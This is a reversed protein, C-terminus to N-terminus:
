KQEGSNQLSFRDVCRARRQVISRNQRSCPCLRAASILRM